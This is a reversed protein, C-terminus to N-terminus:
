LSYFSGTELQSGHPASEIMPGKGTGFEGDFDSPPLAPLLGSNKLEPKSDVPPTVGFYDKPKASLGKKATKTM